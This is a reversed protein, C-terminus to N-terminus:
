LAEVVILVGFIADIRRQPAAGVAGKFFDVPVGGDPFNRFAQHAHAIGVTACADEVVAAASLTVMEAACVTDRRPAGEAHDIRRVGERLFLGALEPDISAEVAATGSRIELVRFDRDEDALIRPLRM